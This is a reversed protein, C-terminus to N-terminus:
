ALGHSASRCLHQPATRPQHLREAVEEHFCAGERTAVAAALGPDTAVARLPDDALALLKDIVAHSLAYTSTRGVCAPINPVAYHLVGESRYVPQALTSPRSTEACGGQDIAADIFLSGAKMGRVQDASLLLPATGGREYVAGLVLDAFGVCHAITSPEAIATVCRARLDSELRRLAELDRDLLIVQAGLGLLSRAAAQGLVGAGLIAAVAPAIGPAGGLLLGRGGHQSQLYYAAIPGCLAGAIESMARQVPRQGGRDEIRELALATVQREILTQLTAIPEVALRLFGVLVQQPRLLAVEAPNPALVKAIMQCRGWVEDAAYVITAGAGRYDQDSFHSAEGAGHELLVQHGARVLREVGSPAVLLRTEDERRERLLGINMPSELDISCHL